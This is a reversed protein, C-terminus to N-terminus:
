VFEIIAMPSGDSLRKPLKMIRTYGGKRESYKPSITSVIKKASSESGLISVIERKSAITNKKGKTILKEVYPRLEKAKAETTTIKEHLVLSRALAKM